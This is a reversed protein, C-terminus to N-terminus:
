LIHPVCVVNGRGHRGIKKSKDSTTQLPPPQGGSPVTSSSDAAAALIVPVTKFLHAVPVRVITAPAMRFMKRAEYYSRPPDFQFYRIEQKLLDGARVSMYEEAPQAHLNAKLYNCNLMM